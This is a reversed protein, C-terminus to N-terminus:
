LEAADSRQYSICRSEVVAQGLGSHKAGSRTASVTITGGGSDTFVTEATKDNLEHETDLYENPCTFRM